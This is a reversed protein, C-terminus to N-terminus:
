SCSSPCALWRNTVVRDIKQTATMGKRSKKVARDVLHAIADYREATVISEADDDFREELSARVAAATELAAADPSLADIARQEGELLKIAYWRM